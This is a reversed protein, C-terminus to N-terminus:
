ILLRDPYERRQKHMSCDDMWDFIFCPPIKRLIDTISDRGDLLLQRFTLLKRLSESKAGCISIFYIWRGAAVHLIVDNRLLYQRSSGSNLHRSKTRQRPKWRWVCTSVLKLPTETIQQALGTIRICSQWGLTTKSNIRSKPRLRAPNGELSHNQLVSKKLRGISAVCQHSTADGSGRARSKRCFQLIPSLSVWHRKSISELRRYEGRIQMTCIPDTTISLSFRADTVTPPWNLDIGFTFGTKEQKCLKPCPEFSWVIFKPSENLENCFGLYSM